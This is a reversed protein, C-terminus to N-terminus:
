GKLDEYGSVEGAVLEGLSNVAKPIRQSQIATLSHELGNLEMQLHDLSRSHSSIGVNGTGSNSRVCLVANEEENATGIKPGTLNRGPIAAHTPDLGAAPQRDLRRTSPPANESGLSSVIPAIDVVDIVDGNAIAFSAIRLFETRPRCPVRIKVPDSIHICVALHVHEYEIRAALCARSRPGQEQGSARIAFVEEPSRSPEAGRPALCPLLGRFMNVQARWNSSMFMGRPMNVQAPALLVM